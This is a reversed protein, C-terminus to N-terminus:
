TLKMMEEANDKYSEALKERQRILEKLSAKETEDTTTLLKQRLENTGEEYKKLGGM